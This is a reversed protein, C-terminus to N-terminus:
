ASGREVPDQTRMLNDSFRQAGQPNIRDLAERGARSMTPIRSM